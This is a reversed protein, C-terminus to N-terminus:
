CQINTNGSVSKYCLLLLHMQQLSAKPFLLVCCKSISKGLGGRVGGRPTQWDLPVTISAIHDYCHAKPLKPWLAKVDPEESDASM